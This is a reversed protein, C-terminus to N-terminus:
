NNEADDWWVQDKRFPIGENKIEEGKKYYDISIGVDNHKFVTVLDESEITVTDGERTIVTTM